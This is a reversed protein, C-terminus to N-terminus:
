RVYSGVIIPAGKEMMFKWHMFVNEVVAVGAFAGLFAWLWVVLDSDKETEMKDRHGLFRHVPGPLRRLIRPGSPIFPNIYHDVDFNYNWTLWRPEHRQKIQEHGSSANSSSLYSPNLSAM